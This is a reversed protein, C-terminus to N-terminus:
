IGKRRQGGPAAPVQGTGEMRNAREAQNEAQEEPGLAEAKAIHLASRILGLHTFGQPYNGLLEGSVPDIEEALLGLDNAYGAIREFLERVEDLRGAEALCDVMWFSCLAFTAEGGPLGDDTLYRYVLGHSTLPEQIRKVTSVVRPDTPPLFGVQPIVLAIWVRQGEAIKFRSTIGGSPEHRFPFPCSLALTERAHRAIVWDEYTQIAVEARAYDFTPHFSVEVEAQGSLGEVLRLVRYHSAIDEGEHSQNLQEVPMLDTVRFQGGDTSFVTALVNAGEVYARSAAARSGAPGVRFRGGKRSDLLRCFVAPSDFRPWCPWDISGDSSVLAATHADGILAYDRIPRYM